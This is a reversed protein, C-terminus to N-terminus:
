EGKLLEPNDYINGIIECYANTEECEVWCLIDLNVGKSGKIKRLQWGWTYEANPNGFEVVAWIECKAITDWCHVIDGEYIEKGNKDCLGTFQGLTKVDVSISYFSNGNEDEGELEQMQGLVQRFCNVADNVRLSQTKTKIEIHRLDTIQNKLRGKLKQWKDKTKNQKKLCKACLGKEHLQEFNHECNLVTEHCNNCYFAVVNNDKM